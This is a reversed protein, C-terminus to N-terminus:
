HFNYFYTYYFRYLGQEYALKFGARTEINDSVFRVFLVNSVTKMVSMESYLVYDCFGIFLIKFDYIQFNDFIFYLNIKRGRVPFSAQCGPM